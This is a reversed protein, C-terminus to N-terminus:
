GRLDRSEGLLPTLEIPWAEPPQKVPHGDFCTIDHLKWKSLSIAPRTSSSGSAALTHVRAHTACGAKECRLSVGSLSQGGPHEYPSYSFDQLPLQGILYRYGNGCHPCVFDLTARETTWEEPHPFIGELFSPQLLTDLQCSKCQLVYLSPVPLRRYVKEILQAPLVEQLILIHNTLGANMAPSVRLAQHVRCFNYCKEATWVQNRLGAEM